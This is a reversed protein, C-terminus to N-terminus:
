VCRSTYLLCALIAEVLSRDNSDQVMDRVFSLDIKVRDIPFRKLCSLSSYGTGFDDLDLRIGLQRINELWQRIHPGDALLVDEAIEFVLAQPALRYRELVQRKYM